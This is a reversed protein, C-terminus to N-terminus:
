PYYVRPHISSDERRRPLASAAWFCEPCSLRRRRRRRRRKKKQLPAPASLHVWLKMQSWNGLDRVPAYYHPSISLARQQQFYFSNEQQAARRRRSMRM